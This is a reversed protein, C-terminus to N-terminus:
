PFTLLRQYSYFRAVLPSRANIRYAAISSPEISAYALPFGGGKDALYYLNLEERTWWISVSGSSGGNPPITAYLFNLAYRSERYILCM